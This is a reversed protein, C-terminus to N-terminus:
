ARTPPPPRVRAFVRINGKLEILANHLEARTKEGIMLYEEYQQYRADREREIKAIRNDRDIEIQHIQEDRERITKNAEMVERECRLMQVEYEDIRSNAEQTINAIRVGSEEREKKLDKMLEAIEHKAM